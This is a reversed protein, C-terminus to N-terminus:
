FLRRLLIRLGNDAWTYDSLKSHLKPLLAFNLLSDAFFKSRGHRFYPRYNAVLTTAYSIPLCELGRLIFLRSLYHLHSLPHSATILAIPFSRRTRPVKTNALFLPFHSLRAITPWDFTRDVHLFLSSFCFFTFLFRAGAGPSGIFFPRSEREDPAAVDRGFRLLRLRRFCYCCCCCCYGDDDDDDDDDDDADADGQSPNRPNGRVINTGWPQGRLLSVCRCGRGFSRVPRQVQRSRCQKRERPSGVPARGRSGRRGDGAVRRYFGPRGGDAGRLRSRWVGFALRWVGFALRGLDHGLRPGIAARDGIKRSHSLPARTEPERLHISTSRRV